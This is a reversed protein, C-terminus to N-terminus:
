SRRPTREPAGFRGSRRRFPFIELTSSFSQNQQFVRARSRMSLELAGSALEVAGVIDFGHHVVNQASDLNPHETDRGASRTSAFHKMNKFVFRHSVSRTSYGSGDQSVSLESLFTSQFSIV